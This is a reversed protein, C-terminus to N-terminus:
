AFLHMVRHAAQAHATGVSARRSFLFVANRDHPFLQREPTSDLQM